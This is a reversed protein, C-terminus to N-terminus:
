GLTVHNKFSFMVSFMILFDTTVLLRSCYMLMPNSVCGLNTYDTASVTDHVVSAYQM